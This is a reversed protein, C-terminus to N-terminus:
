QAALRLRSQRGTRRATLLLGRLFQEARAIHAPENWYRNRGSPHPMVAMAPGSTQCLVFLHPHRVDFATAVKQGLLVVVRAEAVTHDWIGYQALVAEREGTLNAWLRRAVREADKAQWGEVPDDFLNRWAARKQM